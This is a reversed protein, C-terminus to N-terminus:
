KSSQVSAFFYVCDGSQGPYSAQASDWLASSSFIMSFGFDRVRFTRRTGMCMAM